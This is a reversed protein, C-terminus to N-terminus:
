LLAQFFVFLLAFPRFLGRQLLKEGIGFTRFRHGGVLHQASFQEAMM